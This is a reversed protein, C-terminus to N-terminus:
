ARLSGPQLARTSAATSAMVELDIAMQMAKRVRVHSPHLVHKVEVLFDFPPKSADMVYSTESRGWWPQLMIEPNSKRLSEVVEVSKLEADEAPLTQATPDAIFCCQFSLDRRQFALAVTSVGDYVPPEGGLISASFELM